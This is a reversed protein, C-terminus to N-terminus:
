RSSASRIKKARTIRTIRAEELQLAFRQCIGEILNAGHACAMFGKAPESWRPHLFLGVWKENTRRRPMGVIYHYDTQFNLEEVARGSEERKTKGDLPRRHGQETYRVLITRWTLAQQFRTETSAHSRM